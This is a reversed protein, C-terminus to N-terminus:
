DVFKLLRKINSTPPNFLGEVEKKRQAYSVM